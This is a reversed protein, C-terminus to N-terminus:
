DDGDGRGRWGCRRRGRWGFSRGMKGDTGGDIGGGCRRGVEMEEKWGEEVYMEEWGGDM